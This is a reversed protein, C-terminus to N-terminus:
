LFYAIYLSLGVPLRFLGVRRPRHLERGGIRLNNIMWISKFGKDSNTSYIFLLWISIAFLYFFSFAAFAHLLGGWPYRGEGAGVGLTLCVFSISIFINIVHFNWFHGSLAGCSHLKM